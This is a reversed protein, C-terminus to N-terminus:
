EKQMRSKFWGQNVIKKEFFNQSRKTIGRNKDAIHQFSIFSLVYFTQFFNLFDQNKLFENMLKKSPLSILSSFFVM